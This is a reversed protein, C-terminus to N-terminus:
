SPEFKFDDKWECNIPDFIKSYDFKATHRGWIEGIRKRNRWFIRNFATGKSYEPLLESLVERTASNGSVFFFMAKSEDTLSPYVYTQLSKQALRKTFETLKQKNDLDLILFTTINKNLIIPDYEVKVQNLFIEKHQSYIQKFTDQVRRIGLGESKIKARKIYNWVEKGLRNKMDQWIKLSSWQERYQTFLLPVILPNEKVPESLKFEKKRTLNESLSNFFFNYEEEGIESDQFEGHRDLVKHFPSYILTPSMFYYIWFNEVLGQAKAKKWFKNFQKLLNKPILYRVFFIEEMIKTDFVYTVYDHLPFMQLLKQANVPKRLLIYVPVLALNEYKVDHYYDLCQGQLFTFWRRISRDTVKRGNPLVFKQAIERSNLVKRQKTLFHLLVLLRRDFPDLTM